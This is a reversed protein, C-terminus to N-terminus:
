FGRGNGFHSADVGIHGKTNRSKNKKGGGGALKEVMNHYYTSITSLTDLAQFGRMMMNWDEDSLQANLKIQDLMSKFMYIGSGTEDKNYSEGEFISGCKSCVVTSEALRDKDPINGKYQHVSMVQGGNGPKHNCHRRHNEQTQQLNKMEVSVQQAWDQNGHKQDAM